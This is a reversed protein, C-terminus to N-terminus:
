ALCELGDNGDWDEKRGFFFFNERVLALFFYVQKAHEACFNIGNWGNRVFVWEVVIMLCPVVRLVQIIRKPCILKVVSGIRVEM